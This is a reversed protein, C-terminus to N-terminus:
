QEGLASELETVLAIPELPKLLYRTCGRREARERDDQLGRATLVVICLTRTRDDARLRQLLEHGDTGPLTLEMIVADVGAAAAEFASEADAAEQVAYGRHELLIRYVTRSDRDGDVILVRTADVRRRSM